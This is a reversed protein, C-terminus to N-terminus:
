TKFLIEKVIQTCYYTVLREDNFYKGISKRYFWLKFFFVNRTM